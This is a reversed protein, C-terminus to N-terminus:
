LHSSVNCPDDKFPSIKDYNYSPFIGQATKNITCFMRYGVNNVTITISSLIIVITYILTYIFSGTLLVDIVTMLVKGPIRM